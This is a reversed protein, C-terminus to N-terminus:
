LMQAFFNVCAQPRSRASALPPQRMRPVETTREDIPPTNPLIAAIIGPKEVKNTM